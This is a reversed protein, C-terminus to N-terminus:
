SKDVGPERPDPIAIELLSVGGRPQFASVGVEAPLLFVDGKGVAYTVGGHVIQGTGDICLLIRPAGEAGVTFPSQGRLRWLWFRDCQFLRERRVHAAAELM